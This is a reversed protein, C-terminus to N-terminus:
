FKSWRNVCENGVDGYVLQNSGTGFCPTGGRPDDRRKM